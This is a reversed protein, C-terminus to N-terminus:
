NSDGERNTPQEDAIQVSQQLYIKQKEKIKPATESYFLTFEDFLTKMSNVQSILVYIVTFSLSHLGFHPFQQGRAPM